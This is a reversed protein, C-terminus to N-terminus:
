LDMQTFIASGRIWRTGDCVLEVRERVGSDISGNYLGSDSM